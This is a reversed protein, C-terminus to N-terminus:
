VLRDPVLWAMSISCLFIFSDRSRYRCAKQMQGSGCLLARLTYILGNLCSIFPLTTPMINFSQIFFGLVSLSGNSPMQAFYKVNLQETIYFMQYIYTARSLPMQQIRYVYAFDTRMSVGSKNKPFDLIYDSGCPRM